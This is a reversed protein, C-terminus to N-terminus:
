RVRGLKEARRLFAELADATVFRANGVKVSPLDGQYIWRWITREGRRLRDAVEKVTLLDSM